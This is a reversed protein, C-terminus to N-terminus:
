RVPPLIFHPQHTHCVGQWPYFNKGVAGAGPVGTGAAPPRNQLVPGVGPLHGAPIPVGVHLLQCRLVLLQNGGAAPIDVSSRGINGSADRAKITVRSATRGEEPSPLTVIFRGTSPDYVGGTTISIKEAPLIGDVGDTISGTIIRNEPDLEMLRGLDKKATRKGGDAFKASAGVPTAKSSQGGTNSYVETDVVFVNVDEGSAMVHDLGGYGIDYAWGDGGYM